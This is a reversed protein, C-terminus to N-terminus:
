AANAALGNVAPFVRSARALSAMLTLHARWGRYEPDDDIGLARNGAPAFRTLQDTVGQRGFIWCGIRHRSLM